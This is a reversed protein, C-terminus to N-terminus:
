TMQVTCFAFRLMFRRLNRSAFRRLLTVFVQYCSMKLWQLSLHAGHQLSSLGPASRLSSRSRHPSHGPNIALAESHQAKSKPALRGILFYGTFVSCQEVKLAIKRHVKVNNSYFSCLECDGSQRVAVFGVLTRKTSLTIRFESARM